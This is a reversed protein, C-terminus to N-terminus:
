LARLQALVDLALDAIRWLEHIRGEADARTADSQLAMGHALTFTNYGADAARLMMGSAVGEGALLDLGEGVFYFRWLPGLDAGYVQRTRDILEGGHQAITDVILYYDAVHQSQTGTEAVAYALDVTLHANYGAMAARAGSENCDSALSFYHAWHPEVPGATLHGHLNALYRELLDFSIDHAWARDTFADPSRQLPMVAAEEVADLGVSFLGRRDGHREFIRAIQSHRSVANELRELRNTGAIGTPDALVAIEQEAAPPALSCATAVNVEAHAYTAALPLTLAAVSLTLASRLLSLLSRHQVHPM